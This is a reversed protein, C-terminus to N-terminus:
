WDCTINQTDEEIAEIQSEITRREKQLALWEKQISLSAAETDAITKRHDHFGDAIYNQESRLDFIQM